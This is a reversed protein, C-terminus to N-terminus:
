HDLSRKLALAFKVRAAHTSGLPRLRLRKFADVVCDRLKPDDPQSSTSRVDVVDGSSAITAEMVVKSDSSLCRSFVVRNKAVADQISAPEVHGGVSEGTAQRILKAKYEDRAEIPPPPPPPPPPLDQPPDKSAKEGDGADNEDQDLLGRFFGPKEPRKDVPEEQVTKDPDKKQLDGGPRSLEDEAPLDLLEVEVNMEPQTTTADPAVKPEAPHCGLLLALVLAPYARRSSL